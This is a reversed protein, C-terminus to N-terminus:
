VFKNNLLLYEVIGSIYEKNTPIIVMNDGFIKYLMEQNSNSYTSLIIKRIKQEVYKPSTKFEKGVATYLGKVIRKLLIKDKIALEIATTLYEWNKIYNPIGLEQILETVAISVDNEVKENRTEIINLQKVNQFDQKLKECSKAMQSEKNELCETELFNQILEETKFCDKKLEKLVQDQIKLKLYEVSLAMYETATLKNGRNELIYYAKFIKEFLANKNKLYEDIIYEISRKVEALKVNHEKAVAKYIEVETKGTRHFAMHTDLGIILASVIYSYGNYSIPIGCKIVYERVINEVKGADITLTIDDTEELEELLNSVSNEVKRLNHRLQLLEAKTTM